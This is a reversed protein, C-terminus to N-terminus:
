KNTHEDIIDQLAQNIPKYEYKHLKSTESDKRDRLNKIKRAREAAEIITAYMNNGHVDMAKEVDVRIKDSNAM